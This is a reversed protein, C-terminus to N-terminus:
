TCVRFALINQSLEYNSQKSAIHNIHLLTGYPMGKIEERENLMFEKKIDNFRAMLMEYAM